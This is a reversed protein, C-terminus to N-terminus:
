ALSAGVISGNSPNRVVRLWARCGLVHQWEEHSETASDHRLYTRSIADNGANPMTKRFVFEGLPRPGCFPCDLVAPMPLTV